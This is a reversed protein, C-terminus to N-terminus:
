HRGGDFQIDYVDHAIGQRRDTYTMHLQNGVQLLTPYSYEEMPLGLRADGASVWDRADGSTSLRLRQRSTGGQIPLDNHALVYAGDGLRLAAAATGHNALHSDPQDEWTRGGDGSTAVRLRQQEGGCRMMAVMNLGSTSVLAPQLSSTSKGMRALWRPAGAADFSLVMGYKNGLEFYAPLLWGGDETAVPNNRVLVSTNFLPSMPLVRTAAFHRGQDTSVLQVVRSAAWGGLGTAVVYLHVRGDPAIWPVPNGIRRVGFGIQRGLMERDVVSVPASWQGGSLRSMYVQVDPASERQGAWWYALLDGGPLVTIASAHASPANPPSPIRGRSHEILQVRRAQPVPAFVANALSRSPQPSSGQARWRHAEAWCIALLCVLACAATVARRQMSRMAGTGEGRRVRGASGRAM